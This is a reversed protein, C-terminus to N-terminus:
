VWVVGLGEAGVFGYSEAVGGPAGDEGEGFPAGVFVGEVDLEGGADAKTRGDATSDTNAVDFFHEGPHLM